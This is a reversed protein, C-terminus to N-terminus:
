PRCLRFRKLSAPAFEGRFDPPSLHHNRREQQKLSAPAFEGRFNGMERAREIIEEM